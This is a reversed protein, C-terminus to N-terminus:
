PDSFSVMGNYTYFLANQHMGEQGRKGWEEASEVMVTVWHLVVTNVVVNFITALLPDVQTVGQNGKLSARYYGGVRAMM